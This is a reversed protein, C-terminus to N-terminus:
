KGDVFDLASDLKKVFNELPGSKTKAAVATMSAGARTPSTHDDGGSMLSSGSRVRRLISRVTPSKVHPSNDAADRNSSTAVSLKPRRKKSDEARPREVQDRTDKKRLVGGKGLISSSRGMSGGQNLTLGASSSRRPVTFSGSPGAGEDRRLSAHSPLRSATHIPSNPATTFRDGEAIGHDPYYNTASSPTLEMIMKSGGGPALSFTQEAALVQQRVSGDATAHLLGSSQQHTPQRSHPQSSGGSISLTHGHYSHSMHNNTSFSLDSYTPSDTIGLPVSTIVGSPELRRRRELYLLLDEEKTKPPGDSDEADLDWASMAAQLKAAADVKGQRHIDVMWGMWEAESSEGESESLNMNYGTDDDDLSSTAGMTHISGHISGRHTDTITSAYSTTSRRRISKRRKTSSTDDRPPAYGWLMMETPRGVEGMGAKQARRVLEIRWEPYPLAGLTKKPFGTSRTNLTALVPPHEPKTFNFKSSPSAEGASEYGGLNSANSHTAESLVATSTSASFSEDNMSDQALTSASWSPKHAPPSSAPTPFPTPTPSVIEPLSSIFSSSIPHPFHRHLIRLISVYANDNGMDLVIWEGKEEEEKRKEREREKAKRAARERAVDDGTPKETNHLSIFEDDRNVPKDVLEKPREVEKEGAVRKGIGGRPYGYRYSSREKGLRLEPDSDNDDSETHAFVPSSLTLSSGSDTNPYNIGMRIIADPDPSDSGGDASSQAPNIDSKLTSLVKSMDVSIDADVADEDGDDEDESGGGEDDSEASTVAGSPPMPKKSKQQTNSKEWGTGLEPQGAVINGDIDEGTRLTTQIDAQGVFSMDEAKSKGKKDKKKEKKEKGSGFFAGMGVGIKNVNVTSGAPSKAKGALSLSPLSSKRLYPGRNPNPGPNHLVPLTTKDKERGKDKPKEQTKPKSKSKSKEKEKDKRKTHSHARLGTDSADELQRMPPYTAVKRPRKRDDAVAGSTNSAGGIASAVTGPGAFMSLSPATSTYKRKEPLRRSKSTPPAPAVVSSGRARRESRFKACVIRFGAHEAEERSAPIYSRDSRDRLPEDPDDHGLLSPHRPPTAPRFPLPSASLGSWANVQAQQPPVSRKPARRAHVSNTSRILHDVDRLGTLSSLPLKHTPTSDERSKCLSVVGDRIVVWRERWELKRRGIRAASHDGTRVGSERREWRERERRERESELVNVVGEDDWAAPNRVGSIGMAMGMTAPYTGYRPFTPGAYGYMADFEEDRWVVRLARVWGEWYPQIYAVPNSRPLSTLIRQHNFQQKRSTKPQPFIYPQGQGQNRHSSSHTYPLSYHLELLEYPGLEYDALRFDDEFLQGTSFRVLTYSTPDHTSPAPKEEVPTPTDQGHGHGSVSGGAGGNGLVRAVPRVISSISSSHGHRRGAPPKNLDTGMGIGAGIGMGIGVGTANPGATSMGMSIRVRGKAVLGGGVDEQTGVELGDDFDDSDWERDEEYGAEDVEEASGVATVAGSTISTAAGAGYTGYAGVAQPQPQAFEIPSIPRHRPDPAFTIPSPPREAANPVQSFSYSHASRGPHDPDLPSPFPIGICKHLLLWKIDAIKWTPDLHTLLWQDYPVFRCSLIILAPAPPATPEEM